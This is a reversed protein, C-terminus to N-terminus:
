VLVLFKKLIPLVLVSGLVATIIIVQPSGKLGSKRAIILGTMKIVAELLWIM